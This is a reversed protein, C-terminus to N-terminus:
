LSAKSENVASIFNMIAQYAPLTFNYESGESNYRLILKTNSNPDVKKLLEYMQDVQDQTISTSGKGSVVFTAYLSVENSKTLSFHDDGYYLDCADVKRSTAKTVTKILLSSSGSTAPPEVTLEYSDPTSSDWKLQIPLYPVSKSGEQMSIITNGRKDVEKVVANAAAEEWNGISACGVLMCILALASIVAIFNKKMKIRGFFM